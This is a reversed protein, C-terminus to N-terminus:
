RYLEAKSAATASLEEASHHLWHVVSTSVAILLMSRRALVEVIRRTRARICSTVLESRSALQMRESWQSATLTQASAHLHWLLDGIIMIEAPLSGVGISKIHLWIHLRRSRGGGMAGALLGRLGSLKSSAELHLSVRRGSRANEFPSEM